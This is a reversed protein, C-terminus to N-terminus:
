CTKIEMIKIEMMEIEMFGPEILDPAAHTLQERMKHIARFLINKVTGESRDVVVAIEKLKFNQLHRLTFVTQEFPSLNTLALDIERRLQATRMSAEGHETAEFGDLEARQLANALQLHRVQQRQMDIATLYTIRYLWTSLKSDGRFEPLARYAKIFAEQVIDEALAADRIVSRAVTFMRQKHARVIEQFAERDGQGARRALVADAQVALRDTAQQEPQSPQPSPQPSQLPSQLSVIGM